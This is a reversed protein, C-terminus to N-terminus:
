TETDLGSTLVEELRRAEAVGLNTLAGLILSVESRIPAGADRLAAM